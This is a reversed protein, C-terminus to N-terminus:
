SFDVVSGDKCLSPMGALFQQQQEADIHSLRLELRTLCTLASLQQLMPLTLQPSTNPDEDPIDDSYRGCLTFYQERM